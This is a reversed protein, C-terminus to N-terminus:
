FTCLAVMVGLFTAMALAGFWLMKRSPQRVEGGTGMTEQEVKMRWRSFWWRKGGLHVDNWVRAEDEEEGDGESDSSSDWDNEWIDPRSCIVDVELGPYVRADWDGRWIRMNERVDWLQEIIAGNDEFDELLVEVSEWRTFTSYDLFRVFTQGELHINFVLPEPSDYAAKASGSKCCSEIDESGCLSIDSEEHLVPAAVTSTISALPLHEQQKQVTSRQIFRSWTYLETPRCPQKPIYPQVSVAFSAKEFFYSNWPKSRDDELLALNTTARSMTLM